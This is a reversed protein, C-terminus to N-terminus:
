ISRRQVKFTSLRQTDYGQKCCLSRLEAATTVETVAAGKM